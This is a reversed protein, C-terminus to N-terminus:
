DITRAAWRLLLLLLLSYVEIGCSSQLDLICALLSPITHSVGSGTESSHSM